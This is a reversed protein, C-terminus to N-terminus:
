ILEGLSKCLEVATIKTSDVEDRNVIFIRADWFRGSKYWGMFHLSGGAAIWEAAEKMAIVKQIRALINHESTCQVALIQNRKIALVDIFGFLDQRIKAFSNWRETVTATYGNSRLYKLTLQTPSVKGAM